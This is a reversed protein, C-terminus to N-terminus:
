WKKVCHAEDVVFAVMREILSPSRWIDRWEKDFLTEPNTLILQHRGKVVTMKSSEVDGKNTSIAATVGMDHLINVQDTMLAVLPSVVVAVSSGNSKKRLIDFLSPLCFYCLSKGFGTPLCIFVDNGEVFSIIANEQEKKLAEYGLALVCQKLADEIQERSCTSTSCTAM